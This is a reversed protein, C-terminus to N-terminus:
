PRYQECIATVQGGKRYLRFLVDWDANGAWQWLTEGTVQCYPMYHSELIWYVCDEALPLTQGTPGTELRYGNPEEEDEIWNMEDFTVEGDMARLYGFVYDEGWGEGPFEESTRLVEGPTEQNLSVTEAKLSSWLASFDMSAAEYPMGDVLLWAQGGGSAYGLTLQSGDTCALRLVFDTGVTPVQTQVFDTSLNNKLFNLVTEKDAVSRCTKQAQEPNNLVEVAFLDSAELQLVRYLSLNEADGTDGAPLYRFYYTCDGWCATKETQEWVATIQFLYGAGDTPTPLSTGDNELAHVSQYGDTSTRYQVGISDPAKQFLLKLTKANSENVYPMVSLMSLPDAASASSGQVSDGEKWNWTYAGTTATVGSDGYEIELGYPQEAAAEEKGSCGSLLLLCLCLCIWKKM